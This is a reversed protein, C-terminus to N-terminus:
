FPIHCIQCTCDAPHNAAPSVPAVAPPIAYNAGPSGFQEQVATPAVVSNIASPQLPSAATAQGAQILQLHGIFDSAARKSLEDVGCQFKARCEADADVGIDRSIARILGLQKGSIMDGLTQAVPSSSQSPPQTAPAHGTMSPPYSQGPLATPGPAPAESNPRQNAAGSQYPRFAEQWEGKFYLGEAENKYQGFNTEHTVEGSCRLGYYTNGEPSRYFLFVSAGCLGCKDPVESWFSAQKIVEKADAGTIEIAINPAIGITIKQGM